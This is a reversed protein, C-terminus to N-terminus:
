LAYFIIGQIAESVIPDVGGGVIVDSLHGAIRPDQSTSIDYSFDITVTYHSDSGRAYSITQTQKTLIDVEGSVGLIKKTLGMGLPAVM